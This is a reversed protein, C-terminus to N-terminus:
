SSARSVASRATKKLYMARVRASAWPRRAVKMGLGKAPSVPEPHWACTDSTEVVPWFCFTQPPPSAAMCPSDTVASLNRPPSSAWAGPYVAIVLGLTFENLLSLALHSPRSVGM